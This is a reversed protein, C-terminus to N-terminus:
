KSDVSVSSKDDNTDNSRHQQMKTVLKGNQSLQFDVSALLLLEEILTDTDEKFSFIDKEMFSSVAKPFATVSYDKGDKELNFNVTMEVYCNKMLMSKKCSHCKVIKCGPTANIKKKCDRNNCTLFSNVAVNLIDPCCIWHEAQQELVKSIDQEEGPSVVTSQTTALCKGYFHRLRCDTICYFKGEEIATIHEGWVSLPIVGSSDTLTADRVM